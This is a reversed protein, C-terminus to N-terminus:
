GPSGGGTGILALETPITGELDNEGLILSAFRLEHGDITGIKGLETPLAGSLYNYHVNLSTWNNGSSSISNALNGFQTPITSSFFNESFFAVGLKVLSGFESPLSSDDVFSNTLDLHTLETMLGIETPTLGSMVSNSLNLNRTSTLRGLQTPLSGALGRLDITSNKHCLSYARWDCEGSLDVETEFTENGAAPMATALTFLLVRLLMM